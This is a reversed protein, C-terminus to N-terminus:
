DLIQDILELAWEAKAGRLNITGSLFLQEEPVSLMKAGWAGSHGIALRSAPTTFRFIGHGVQTYRPPRGAPEQWQLMAALTEPRTFLSGSLLGSLFLNLDGATAIVGGGGWDNSLSIGASVFPVPGAWCDSLTRRWPAPDLDSFSELYSAHMGLRDFILSRLLRHYSAGLAHEALLALIMFATDSYHFATGPPWLAQTMGPANLYFNILGAMEDEPRAPDWPRWLKRTLLDADPQRGAALAAMHAAM